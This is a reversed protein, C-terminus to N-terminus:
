YYYGIVIIMILFMSGLALLPGTTILPNIGANISLIKATFLIM